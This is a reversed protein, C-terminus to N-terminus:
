TWKQIVTGGKKLEPTNELKADQDSLEKSPFTTMLVWSRAQSAPNSAGVFAYVDGITHTLNFRSVLRTGDGLRIQLAVTPQSSDISPQASQSSATTAPTSPAPTSASPAVQPSTSSTGIGPVPSGLRQGGGGFPKYKKKPQVFPGDHPELKVDVEQNEQVNLLALPATGRRIMELVRANEPDESNYLPGDDVSFGNSWFHLHREVRELPKPLNATPDEIM